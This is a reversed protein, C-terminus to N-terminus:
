THLNHMKPISHTSFCRLPTHWLPVCIPERGAPGRTLSADNALKIPTAKIQEDGYNLLSDVSGNRLGKNTPRCRQRPAPRYSQQTRLANTNTLYPVSGYLDRQIRDGTSPIQHSARM